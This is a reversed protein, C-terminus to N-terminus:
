SKSSNLDEWRGTESARKGILSVTNQIPEVIFFSSIYMDKRFRTAKIGFQIFIFIYM